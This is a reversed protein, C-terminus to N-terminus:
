CSLTRIFTINLRTRTVVTASPFLIVYESHTNAAKTMWCAFRMSRILNDDIPQGAACYKVLTIYYVALDEPSFLRWIFHTKM